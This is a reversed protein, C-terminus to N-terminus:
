KGRFNFGKPELAKELENQGDKGGWCNCVEVVTGYSNLVMRFTRERRTATGIWTTASESTAYVSTELKWGGDQMAKTLQDLSDFIAGTLGEYNETMLETVRAAAEDDNVPVRRAALAPSRNVEIM